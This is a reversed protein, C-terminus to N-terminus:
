ECGRRRAGAIREAILFRLERRTLRCLFGRQSESLFQNRMRCGGGCNWRAFCNRCRPNYISDERMIQCRLTEDFVVRGDNDVRGFVFRDFKNDLPHAIRHCLSLEGSPGLTWGAACFRTDTCVLRGLLGTELRLKEAFAFQRAVKFGSLFGEVFRRFAINGSDLPLAPEFVVSSIGSKMRVLERVMEVQRDENGPTITARVTVCTGSAILTKIGKLVQRPEGRQREQIDPLIDWSATVNVKNRQLFNARQSTMLSANTVLGLRLETGFKDAIRQSGEICDQVVHWVMLPEGGGAFVLGLRDCKYEKILCELVNLVQLSNLVSGERGRGAAAYCYSCNFNCAWTPLVTLSRVPSLLGKGPVMTHKVRWAEVEKELRRPLRGDPCLDVCGMNPVYAVTGIDGGLEIRFVDPNRMFRSDRM